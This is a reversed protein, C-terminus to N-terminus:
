LFIRKRVQVDFLRQSVITDNEFYSIASELCQYEGNLPLEFTKLLEQRTLPNEIIAGFLQAYFLSNEPKSCFFNMWEFCTIVFAVLVSLFVAFVACLRTERYSLSFFTRSRQMSLVALLITSVRAWLVKYLLWEVCIRRAMNFMYDSVIKIVSRNLICLKGNLMQKERELMEFYGIVLTFSDSILLVIFYIAIPKHIFTKSFFVIICLVNSLLSFAHITPMFFCWVVTELTSGTLVTPLTTSNNM